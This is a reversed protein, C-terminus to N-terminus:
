RKTRRKKSIDSVDAVKVERDLDVFPAGNEMATRLDALEYASNLIQRPKTKLPNHQWATRKAFIPALKPGVLNELVIELWERDRITLASMEAAVKEDAVEVLEPHEAAFEASRKRLADISGGFYAAAVKGLSEGGVNQKGDRVNGVWAKSVGVKDAIPKVQKNDTGILFHRVYATVRSDVEAGM